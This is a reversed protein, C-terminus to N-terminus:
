KGYLRLHRWSRVRHRELPLHRHLRVNRKHDQQGWVLVQPAGHQLGHRLTRRPLHPRRRSQPAQGPSPDAHTQPDSPLLRGSRLLHQHRQQHLRGAPLQQLIGRTRRGM